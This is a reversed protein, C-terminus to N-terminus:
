HGKPIMIDDKEGIGLRGSRRIIGRRTLNVVLGSVRQAGHEDDSVENTSPGTGSRQPSQTEPMAGIMSGPEPSTTATKPKSILAVFQFEVIARKRHSPKVM